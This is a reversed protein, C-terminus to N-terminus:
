EIPYKEGPPFASELLDAVESYGKGRDVVPIFEM